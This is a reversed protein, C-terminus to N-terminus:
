DTNVTLGCFENFLFLYYSLVYTIWTFLICIFWNNSKVILLTFHLLINWHSMQNTSTIVIFGLIAIWNHLKCILNMNFILILRADPGFLLLM